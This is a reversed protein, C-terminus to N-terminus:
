PVNAKLGSKRMALAAWFPINVLFIWVSYENFRFYLDMTIAVTEHFMLAGIGIALAWFRNYLALIAVLELIVGAGLAIRALNPYDLMWEAYKQHTGLVSADLSSYYEQKETKVVELAMYPSNWFWKGSTRVIKTLAAIVYCGAIAGQSYYVFYSWYNRGETFPYAKGTKIRHILFWWAVVTQFLLITTVMQCGHHISGQSNYYTRVVISAATLLTLVFPMLCGCAYIVLCIAVGTRIWLMADAPDNISSLWTLDLFRAIGNPYKQSAFHFNQPFTQWVVAAFLVRMITAEWPAVTVPRFTGTIVPKLLSRTKGSM